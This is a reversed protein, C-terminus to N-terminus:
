DGRLLNEGYDRLSEFSNINQVRDKMMEKVYGPLSDFYQQAQPDASLLANLGAYTKNMMGVENRPIPKAAVTFIMSPLVANNRNRGVMSQFLIGYMKM